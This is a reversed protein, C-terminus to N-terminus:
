ANQVFIRVASEKAGHAEMFCRIVSLAKETIEIM